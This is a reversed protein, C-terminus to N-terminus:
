RCLVEVWGGEREEVEIRVPVAAATALEWTDPRLLGAAEDDDDDGDDDGAAAADRHLACWM